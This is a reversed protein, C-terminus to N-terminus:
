KIYIVSFYDTEHVGPGGPSINGHPSFKIRLLSNVASRILTKINSTGAPAQAHATHPRSSKEYM